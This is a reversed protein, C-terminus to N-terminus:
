GKKDEIKRVKITNGELTGTVDVPTGVHKLAEEQNDLGVLKKTEEVYLVLKAGNKACRLTCAKGEAGVNKAGCNEDTIWGTWTQDAKGAPADASWVATGIAALALMAVIASIRLTGSRM